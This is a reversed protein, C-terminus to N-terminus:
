LGAELEICQDEAWDRAELVAQERTAFYTAGTVIPGNVDYHVACWGLLGQQVGIFSRRDQINIGGGSCDNCGRGNCEPHKSMAQAEVTAM